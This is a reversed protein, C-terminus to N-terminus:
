GSQENFFRISDLVLYIPHGGTGVNLGATQWHAIQQCVHNILWQTVLTVLGSKKPLPIFVSASFLFGIILHIGAYCPRGTGILVAM